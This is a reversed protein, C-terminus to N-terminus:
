GSHLVAFRHACGRDSAAVRSSYRVALLACTRIMEEDSARQMCAAHDSGKRNESYKSSVSATGWGVITATIYMNKRTTWESMVQEQLSRWRCRSGYAVQRSIHHGGLRLWSGEHLYAAKWLGRSIKVDFEEICVAGVAESATRLMSGSATM